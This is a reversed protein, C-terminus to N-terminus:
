IIPQYTTVGLDVLSNTYYYSDLLVESHKDRTDVLSNTDTSSGSRGGGSKSSFTFQSSPKSSAMSGKVNVPLKTGLEQERRASVMFDPGCCEVHGNLTTTLRAFVSDDDKRLSSDTPPNGHKVQGAKESGRLSIADNGDVDKLIIGNTPQSSRLGTDKRVYIRGRGAQYSQTGSHSLTNAESRGMKAVNQSGERIQSSTKRRNKRHDVIMWPGFQEHTDSVAMTGSDHTHMSTNSVIPSKPNSPCDIEKHTARGCKFCLNTIGEYEM